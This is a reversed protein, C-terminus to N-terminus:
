SGTSHYHRVGLNWIRCSVLLFLIGLSPALAGLILPLGEHHLLATIPYFGVCSLPIVFTFFLRLPAKYISMPYQGTEMGGYTTINMVELTEITWFTLTAQLVFLGYFLCTTGLIAFAIVCTQVSFFSFGQQQYSWVLVLFGQLFRGIRMWQIESTAIQFLTGLPRLLVRDFGGRKIMMSFNDFGRSFAEATAFGMQVIAYLLALDKLTWDQIMKFRDFLVWIGLIEIFTSFFYAVTLM